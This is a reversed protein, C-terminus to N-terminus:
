PIIRFLTIWPSTSESLLRIRHRQNRTRSVGCRMYHENYKCMGRLIMSDYCRAYNCTCSVAVPPRDTSVLGIVLLRDCTTTYSSFQSPWSASDVSTQISSHMSRVDVSKNLRRGNGIFRYIFVNSSAWHYRYQCMESRWHSTRFDGHHDFASPRRVLQSELPQRTLVTAGDSPVWEVTIFRRRPKKVFYNYYTSRQVQGRRWKSHGKEANSMM